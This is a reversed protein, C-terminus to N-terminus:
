HDDPGNYDKKYIFGDDCEIKDQIKPRCSLMWRTDGNITATLEDTRKAARTLEPDIGFIRKLFIELPKM